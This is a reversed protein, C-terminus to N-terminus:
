FLEELCRQMEAIDKAIMAGRSRRGHHEGTLLSHMLIRQRTPLSQYDRLLENFSGLRTAVNFTVSLRSSLSLHSLFPQTLSAPEAGKSGARSPPHFLPLM